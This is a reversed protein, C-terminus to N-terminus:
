ANVPLGTGYGDISHPSKDGSEGTPSHVAFRQCASDSSVRDKAILASWVCRNRSLSPIFRKGSGVGPGETPPSGSEPM